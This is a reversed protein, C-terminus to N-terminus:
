VRDVRLARLAALLDVEIAQEMVPQREFTPHM